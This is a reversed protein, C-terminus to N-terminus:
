RESLTEVRPENPLDLPSQDVTWEDGLLEPRDFDRMVAFHREWDEVFLTEALHDAVRQAGVSIGPVDGAIRGHSMMAGHNMCCVRGVWSDPDGNRDRFEMGDGLFPHDLVAPADELDPVADRWRLVREALRGLEPRQTWDIGFGTGVVVLDSRIEGQGTVLVIAGAEQRADLVPCDTRVAFGPHRSCRLVSAKPPPANMARMYANIQWRAKPPLARFGRAFGSYNAALSKNVRPIDVRRVLLVVRRAGAELAEAANDFASAGAGVVAV